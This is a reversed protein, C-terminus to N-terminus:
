FKGGRLKDGVPASADDVAAQLEAQQTKITENADAVQQKQAGIEQQGKDHFYNFVGVILTLLNAIFSM